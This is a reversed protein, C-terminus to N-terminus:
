TFKDVNVEMNVNVLMYKTTQVNIDMRKAESVVLRFYFLIKRQLEVNYTASFIKLEYWVPGTFEM